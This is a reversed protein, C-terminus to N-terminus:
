GAADLVGSRDRVWHYGLDTEHRGDILINVRSPEALGFRPTVALVVFTRGEFHDAGLAMLSDSFRRLDGPTM